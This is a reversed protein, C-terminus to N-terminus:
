PTTTRECTNSAWSRGSRKKRCRLSAGGAISLPSRVVPSVLAGRGIPAQDQSFAWAAGYYHLCAWYRVPQKFGGRDQAVTELDRVRARFPAQAKSKGGDKASPEKAKPLVYGRYEIGEGVIM